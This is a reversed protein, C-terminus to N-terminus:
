SNESFQIAVIDQIDIYNYMYRHSWFQYKGDVRQPSTILVALFNLDSM